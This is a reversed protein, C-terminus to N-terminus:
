SVPWAGLGRMGAAGLLLLNVSSAIEDLAGTSRATEVATRLARQLEEREHVPAELYESTAESLSQAIEALDPDSELPTEEAEPAVTEEIGAAVPEEQDEVDVPPRPEAESEHGPAATVDPEANADLASELGLAVAVDVHREAAGASPVTATTKPVEEGFLASISRAIESLEKQDDQTM